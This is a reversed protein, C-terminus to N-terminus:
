GEAGLRHKEWLPAIAPRTAVAQALAEIRPAHRPTWRRGGMWRSLVAIYIDALCFRPGLLFPAVPRGTLGAHAEILGLVGQGMEVARARIAAHHSPDPSFREPYDARTVHPYFEGALLAMWRLAWARGSDSPPPLLAAEPHRDAITLLIALSETLVMGDPLVLTPVRGMPNLERYGAALQHEGKLPVDRIEVAQGAEALTMEVTASGSGIDGHLVYRM